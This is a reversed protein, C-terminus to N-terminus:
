EENADNNKEDRDSISVFEFDTSIDENDNSMDVDDYEDEDSSKAIKVILVIIAIILLLIIGIITVGIVKTSADLSMIRDIFSKETEDSDSFYLSEGVLRQITQETTDYRYFGTYGKPGAAYIIVFENLTPDSSQYATVTTEGINLLIESYGDPVRDPTLIEYVSSQTNITIYKTFEGDSLPRYFGGNEGESDTLYVLVNNDNKVCAFEQGNYTYVDLTYGLPILTSDFSEVLYLDKGDATVPVKNNDPTDVPNQPESTVSDAALRTINLTYRKTTGNEATVIIVRKNAGVKMEKSGEVDWDAKSDAVKATVILQTVNNPITISYETVDKSFKPTLSGASPIINNLNANSSKELSKDTVSLSASCGTLSVIPGGDSYGADSVKFSAKGTGIAKFVIKETANSNATAGALMIIGASETSGNGSEISVMEFLNSDYTVKAEYSFFEETPKLRITVTVKDGINLSNASFAISTTGAAFVNTTFLTVLVCVMILVAIIRKSLKM